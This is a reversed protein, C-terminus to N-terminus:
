GARRPPRIQRLDRSLPRRGAEARRLEDGRRVARRDARLRAAGCARDLAQLVVGCLDPDAEAGAQAHHARGRVPLAQGQPQHAEEAAWLKRVLELGEDFISQNDDFSVDFPLYERRDYGRGAAFDVRGNCLLISRRGSSPSASRIICRCCPSPPRSASTSPARRSIPWCWTRARSCASRMSTISASGRRTCASSTPM